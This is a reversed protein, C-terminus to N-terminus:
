HVRNAGAVLLAQVRDVLDHIRVPKRLLSFAGTVVGSLALTSDEGAYGTLLVAPLGPRREQAARILELGDMGPMSLDTVLADVTTGAGLLALAETGNAATIVGFGEHELHEALVELVSEEDDVVLLRSSITPRSIESAAKDPTNPSLTTGPSRDSSHQPLWLRVTTGKGRDSEIDMAGGSQEAFGRAM